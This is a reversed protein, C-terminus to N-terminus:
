SPSRQVLARRLEARRVKGTPGAPLAAVVTISAPREFRSLASRCRDELDATVSTHDPAAHDPAAAESRGGAGAPPAALLVVAVPEQGLVPHPRAVVAAAAVRPDGLLVEEVRRPYVKEGGRNIVDDVRGVLYLFGDGDLRGLDATSLWGDSGAPTVGPGRIEVEGVREAPLTRRDADVIRLEIGVPRGVSGPRRGAPALPNATIQSAAETMGYTELVGIGCRAEFRRRVAAALPASASRVFRVRDAVARDPPPEAALVTLIAPVANVWTVDHAAVTAWFTRRSFRRDVVLRSGAVLTTLVGVVLANVHFLPLPCYGRDDPGIRHHAVVARATHLLQAETLAVSKQRGTSGSSSLVVAAGPSVDPLRPPVTADPDVPVVTVGAALAALFTTAAGLPDPDALVAAPLAPVGGAPGRDAGVAVSPDPGAGVPVEGACWREARAQIERWSVKRGSAGEVFAVRAPTARAREALPDRVTM